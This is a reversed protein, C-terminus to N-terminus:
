SIRCQQHRLETFWIQKNNRTGFGPITILLANLFCIIIPYMCTYTVLARNFYISYKLLSKEDTKILESFANKM